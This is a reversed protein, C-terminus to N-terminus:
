VRVLTNVAGAPVCAIYIRAPGVGDALRARVGRAAGTGDPVRAVRLDLTQFTLIRCRAICGQCRMNWDGRVKHRHEGGLALIVGLAGDVGGADVPLAEVRASDCVWTGGIRETPHM